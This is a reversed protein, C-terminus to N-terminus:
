HMKSYQRTFTNYTFQVMGIKGLWSRKVKQVHLQVEGTEFDRWLAFGNDTKNFFHASGAIHYLTPVEYKGNDLRRLKVPHAALLIHVGYQMTFMKLKTLVKNIYQTENEGKEQKSEIWNYPDIVIANVGKSVVLQKAKELIGDITLDAEEMNVFFFHNDIMGAAWEAEQQTMCQSRDARPHFSKGVLKEMILTAHISAPQTEFSYVAFKWDHNIRMKAMFWDIMESKGSSPSGTITWLEGSETNFSLYDDLEPIGLKLGRPYGHTYLKQVDDYFDEITLIGEVPFPRANNYMERVADKGYKCLVENTDKCGEPYEVKYCRHKGFRRALEDRLAIGPADNDTALIIKTMGEFAEWNNDLYDLKSNGSSAGNPVSVCNYIGSEVAACVDLEGEVICCETEGQLADINYFILEAGSVLKFYKGM